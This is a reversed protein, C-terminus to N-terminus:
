YVAMYFFIFPLFLGFIGLFIIFYAFKELFYIPNTTKWGPWTIEGWDASGNLGWHKNKWELPPKNFIPFRNIWWKKLADM